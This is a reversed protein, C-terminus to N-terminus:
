IHLQHIFVRKRTDYETKLDALILDLDARRGADAAVLAKFESAPVEGAVRMLLAPLPTVKPPLPPAALFPLRAIRDRAAWDLDAGAEADARLQVNSLLAEIPDATHDEADELQETDREAMSVDGAREHQQQEAVIREALAEGLVM